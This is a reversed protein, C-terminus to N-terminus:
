NILKHGLLNKMGQQPVSLDPNKRKLKIQSQVKWDKDNYENAHQERKIKYQQELEMSSWFQVNSNMNKM